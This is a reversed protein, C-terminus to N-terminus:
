TIVHLHFEKIRITEFVARLTVTMTFACYVFINKLRKRIKVVSTITKVQRQKVHSVDLLTATDTDNPDNEDDPNDLLPTFAFRNNNNTPRWLM